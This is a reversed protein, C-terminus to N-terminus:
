KKGLDLPKKVIKYRMKRERLRAAVFNKSTEYNVFLRKKTAKWFPAGVHVQAVESNMRPRGLEHGAFKETKSGGLIM